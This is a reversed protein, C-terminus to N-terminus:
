SKGMGLNQLEVILTLLQHKLLDISPIQLFDNEVTKRNVLGYSGQISISLLVTLLICLRYDMEPYCKILDERPILRIQKPQSKCM